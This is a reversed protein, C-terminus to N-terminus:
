NNEMRLFQSVRSAVVEPLQLPPFHAAGLVTEFRAGPIKSALMEGAAPTWIFDHEGTLVLTPVLISAYEEESLHFGALAESQMAYSIPPNCIFRERYQGWGTDTAPNDLLGKFANRYSTDAVVQMGERRVKAARNLIYSSSNA